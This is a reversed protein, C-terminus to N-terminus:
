FATEFADELSRSAPYARVAFMGLEKALPALAPNSMLAPVVVELFPTIGELFEVRSAKEAQEDAAVTSDAEIDIKFSHAADAKIIACAQEFQQQRKQNEADWAQKMQLWQQFAPNVMMAPQQPPIGGPGGPFPTVNGTM